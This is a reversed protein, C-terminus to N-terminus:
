LHKFSIELDRVLDEVDELGVSVCLILGEGSNKMTSENSYKPILLSEYGGWCHGMKFINMNDLAIALEKYSISKLRMSFRSSAGSFDRKWIDHDKHTPLAPHFVEKVFEQKDFWNAIKIGNKQHEKMRIPLTRLGRLSLYADNSNACYGNYFASDRVKTWTSKKCTVIGMLVDSHGSIYKTASQISIDAGLELPKFYFSTAWTNDVVLPIDFERTVTAIAPIDQVEFFTSGPSEAYVLTTNKRIFKKIDKGAHPPYFEIEVGYKKLISTCFRKTGTYVSEPLLIHSGEQSYAFLVTAISALGSNSAISKYGGEMETIAKEFSWITPNGLRGYHFTEFMNQASYDLEDLTDFIVTSTYFIPPNVSGGFAKHNQGGSVAKTNESVNLKDM